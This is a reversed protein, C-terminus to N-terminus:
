VSGPSPAIDLDAFIRGEETGHAVVHGAMTGQLRIRPPLSPQLLTLDVQELRSDVHWPGGRRWDATLLIRSSGSQWAFGSVDVRGNLWSLTAPGALSWKGSRPHVLDLQSLQGHWGGAGFGGALALATSDQRGALVTHWQNSERTGSATLSAREAAHTGANLQLATANLRVVGGPRLDVDGDARLTAAHFEGVFLSDGALTGAIRPNRRTGRVTGEGHFSGSAQALVSGIQPADIKWALSFARGFGGSAEVRNPGSRVIADTLQYQGARATVTGSAEIPQNRLTGSLRSVLVRGSTGARTNVGQTRGAFALTGPYAPWVRGPNIGQGEFALDWRPVPTWAVTGRGTIRGDFVNAIVTRVALRGNGGHGDLTWRGPPLSRGAVLAELNLSFSTWTGHVRGSGHASEFWPRGRLPWGVDTWAVKLDFPSRSTEGITGNARFRGKSGPRTVVLDDIRTLGPTHRVRFSAATPGLDPTTGSASGAASVVRSDGELRVRGRFTGAPASPILERPTLGYFSVNGTYRTRRLPRVFRMDVDALFPGTLRQRVVLQELTGSLTGEGRVPTVRPPRYIWTGRLVLPYAGRPMAVGAFDLDVLKSRVALRNVHLSDRRMSRADIAVTDIVVGSDSGPRALTLGRVLGDRVIMTVPLNLDPLGRLSDEAQPTDGPGGIVVRVNEGYLRHIDLRRRWLDNLRWDIFVRDATIALRDNRYTFHHIEIPGRLPGKMDRADLRGPFFSGLREFGWKAGPQTYFLWWSGIGALAALGALASAIVLLRRRRATM